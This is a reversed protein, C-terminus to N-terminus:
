LGPKKDGIILEAQNGQTEKAIAVAGVMDVAQKGVAVSADILQSLRSNMAM